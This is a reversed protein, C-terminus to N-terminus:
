IITLGTLRDVTELLVTTSVAKPLVHWSKKSVQEESLDNLSASSLILVSLRALISTMLNALMLGDVPKMQLDTVLLDFHRGGRCHELAVKGGVCANVHFGADFLITSLLRVAELEDDVLLIRKSRRLLPDQLSYNPRAGSAQMAHERKDEAQAGRSRFNVM